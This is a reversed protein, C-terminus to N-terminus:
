ASKDQHADLQARLEQGNSRTYDKNVERKILSKLQPDITSRLVGLFEPSASVVLQEFRGAQHAQQLYNSVDKAFKQTEHETPTVAPQYDNGQAGAPAAHQFGGGQGGGINHGSNQASRPSMKDTVIDLERQQAAPNVLDEVEQLSAANGADSFIRARGANAAITWTTPM